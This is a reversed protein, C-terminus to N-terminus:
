KVSFSFSSLPLLHYDHILLSLLIINLVGKRARTILFVHVYYFCQVRIRSPHAPLCIIWTQCHAALWIICKEADLLVLVTSHHWVSPSQLWPLLCCACLITLNAPSTHLSLMESKVYLM